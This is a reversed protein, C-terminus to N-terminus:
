SSWGGGPSEPMSSEGEDEHHEVVVPMSASTTTKKGTDRVAMWVKSLRRLPGARGGDGARSKEKTKSEERQRSRIMEEMDIASPRRSMGEEPSRGGYPLLRSARPDILMATDTSFTRSLPYLATDTLLAVCVVFVIQVTGGRVIIGYMVFPWFLPGSAGMTLYAGARKTRKAQGRLGLAFVLPWIPGEFLFFLVVPVVIPNSNSAARLAVHWSRGPHRLPHVGGGFGLADHAPQPRPLQAPAPGQPLRPLRRRLPQRRLRHARHAPLQPHLHGARAPRRILELHVDHQSGRRRRRRGDVPYPRDAPQQLLQEHGGPVAMYCWQALVALILCVTQLRLGGLSRKKNDVALRQAARELEADSVEPLPMYYFFFFLALGVCFLTIALYTWRVDLLTM